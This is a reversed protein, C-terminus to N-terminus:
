QPKYSKRYEKRLNELNRKENNLERKLVHVRDRLLSREAQEEGSRKNYPIAEINALRDEAAQKLEELEEIKAESRQIDRNITKRLSESDKDQSSLENLRSELDLNEIRAEFSELTGLRADISDLRSEIDALKAAVELPEEANGQNCGAIAM